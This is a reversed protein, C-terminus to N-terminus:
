RASGSPSGDIWPGMVHVRGKERTSGEIQVGAGDSPDLGGKACQAQVLLDALEEVKQRASGIRVFEVSELSRPRACNGAVETRVSVALARSYCGRLLRRPHRQQDAGIEFARAHAQGEARL